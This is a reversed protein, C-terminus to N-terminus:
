DESLYGLMINIKRKEPNIIDEDEALEEYKNPATKDTFKLCIFFMDGEFEFEAWSFNRFYQNEPLSCATYILKYFKEQNKEHLDAVGRTTLLGVEGSSLLADYNLFVNKNQQYIIEAFNATEM